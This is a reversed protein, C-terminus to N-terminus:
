KGVFVKGNSLLIGVKKMDPTYVIRGVVKAASKDFDLQGLLGVLTQGPDSDKASNGIYGGTAAGRAIGIYEDGARYIRVKGSAPDIGALSGAPVKEENEFYEAYDSGNTQYSGNVNIIGTVDLTRSPSTTGIGVNGSNTVILKTTEPNGTGLKIAGTANRASLMIGNTENRFVTDGAKASESWQGDGPCVTWYSESATRGLVITPYQDAAGSSVSIGTGNGKNITLGGNRLKANGFIDLTATPELTGIGVYGSSNLRIGGQTSSWPAISLAGAGQTGNSYIIANDNAQVIPNYSGPGTTGSMTRLWRTGDGLFIGDNSATAKVQLITSPNYLGIGVNGSGDITAVDTGAVNFAIASGKLRVPIYASSGRNYGQLQAASNYYSLEAGVGSASVPSGTARIAGTVDLSCAPTVTGIGVNGANTNYINGGSAAWQSSGPASTQLSGDAFKLGGGSGAKIEITGAVTLMSTADATGSGIGVNGAGSIAMRTTNNTGLVLRNSLYTGIAMDRATTGGANFLYDTTARSMGMIAAATNGPGPQTLAFYHGGSDTLALRTDVSVGANRNSMELGSIGDVSNSILVKPYTFVPTAIYGGV